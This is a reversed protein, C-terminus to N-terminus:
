HATIIVRQGAAGEGHVSRHAVQVPEPDAKNVRDAGCSGHRGAENAPGFQTTQVEPSRCVDGHQIVVKGHPPNQDSSLFKICRSSCWVPTISASNASCGAASSRSRCSPCSETAS